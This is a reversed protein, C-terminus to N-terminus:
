PTTVTVLSGYTLYPWAEQAAAYPLEVCGLSQQFGYSARPFYHVADGGNFYSVFKVPDAYKTGDPNTGRMITNLYRLYVPFTGPVTTRGPIGTNALSHLVERGDHWITLTEPDHESAIAYTYGNTNAQDAATAAFLAKWVAPGAIGDMTQDHDFEFAMVAGKLILSSSDGHDWFTKLEWPYGQKWRFYGAPPDYAASDQAASGTPSTASSPSVTSGPGTPIWTLPLYGLQALLQDLRRTSFSGTRFRVTVSKSLLEGAASRVGGSGAPIRVRVRTLQKFGAAPIFQIANGSTPQWSGAINPSIKPLPSDPAIAASFVVRIPAAGNVDTADAAPTVTLVQLPKTKAVGSAPHHGAATDTGSARASTHTLVVWTGGALLAVIVAGLLAVRGRLLGLGSL